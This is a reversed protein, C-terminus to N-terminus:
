GRSPKGLHMRRGLDAYIPWNSLNPANPSPLLVAYAEILINIIYSEPSFLSDEQAFLNRLM